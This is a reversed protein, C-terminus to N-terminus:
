IKFKAILNQLDEAMKSLSGSSAAIEEMSALQEESAAAVSQTNGASSQAGIAMQEISANVQEAGAAIEESVASVEQIQSAVKEISYLIKQIGEGTKQVIDKGVEVEHSGKNMVDMAVTTDEQIQGIFKVIKDASEKSQEALKRVEDAVVAFGKGHEGARAAEIAANLALLNTQDAIATIFETIKGIEASHEGLRKVVNASDDVTENITNMQQIVQLLSENGISAEKSTEVAAESVSSAAEAVKQVNITMEQVAKSSEAAREGNNEASISVEQISSAIQETASTSQEAVATLEESASAMLNSSLSIQQIMSRLNAIMKNFALALDGIEDKTKISLEKTLDGEGDAIENLQKNINLIPRVIKKSLLVSLVIGILGFIMSVGVISLVLLLVTHNVTKIKAGVLWMGIVEGNVDQIPKYIALYDEGLIDAKGIYPEGTKLVVEVVDPDAKTGVRRQGNEDLINTAVRTDGQFVTAAGGTIEGIGDVVENNDTVRINGKFLDGNQIAWSGPYRENLWNYSLESVTQVRETFVQMMEKQILFKAVLSITIVLFLIVGIVLLNFKAGIKLQMGIPARGERNLKRIAM